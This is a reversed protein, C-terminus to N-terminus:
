PRLIRFILSPEEPNAQQMEISHDFAANTRVNRWGGDMLNTATQLIFIEGHQAPLSMWVGGPTLAIDEIYREPPDVLVSQRVAEIEDSNLARAYVRVDDIWADPTRDVTTRTTGAVRLENTTPQVVGANRTVPSGVRVAAGTEYGLYFHVNTATLTGDYTAAVFFWGNSPRAQTSSVVLGDNVVLTLGFENRGFGASDNEFFLEFGSVGDSMSLFRDFHLPDAQLNMWMSVSFAELGNLKGPAPTAVYDPQTGGATSMAGVSRGAPTNGTRAAAGSFVGDAPAGAGTDEATVQGSAAEDFTYHLAPDSIAYSPQLYNFALATLQDEVVDVTKDAPATWGSAPAFQLGYEGVALNLLTTGTARWNTQVGGTLRWMAGNSVAAAPGLDVRVSGMASSEIGAQRVQQLEQETLIRDYIRVDDFWADPTRDDAVRTTGGIRLEGTTPDVWGSNRGVTDGVRMVAATQIGAYFNVNDSTITGDYSVALFVWGEGPQVPATCRVAVSDVVLAVNFNTRSFTGSAVRDDLYFEFGDLVNHMSLMRDLNVPNSRLNMWLTATFQSMGNIKSPATVGVHNGLAGGETSMASISFGGPTDGVRVASGLFAADAPDGTGTDLAVSGSGPWDHDFTYRVVPQISADAAMVTYNTDYTTQLGALIPLDTPPLPQWGRVPAFAVTQTGAVLTDVVDGSSKWTTDSGAVLRWRAHELVESPGLNVKLSGVEPDIIENTAVVVDDVMGLGAVRFRTLRDRHSSANACLFWTGTGSPTASEPMDYAQPSMLPDGRDLQFQFMARNRVSNTYALRVTVRSWQGNTIGMGFSSLVNGTESGHYVYLTGNTGAFWAVQVNSEEDLASKMAPDSWTFSVMSDFWIDRQAETQQFRVSLPEGAQLVQTPPSLPLPRLVGPQTVYTRPVVMGLEERPASWGNSGVLSTNVPYVEFDDVYPVFVAPNSAVNLTLAAETVNGYLDTVRVAVSTSGADSDLPMGSLVGDPAVNLWAPGNSAAVTWTDYPLDSDTVLDLINREYEEHALAVPLTSSEFVAAATLTTFAAADSWAAGAANSVFVRFVFGTHPILGMASHHWSGAGVGSLPAASEWAGANTGGDSLGWYFTLDGAIGAGLTANLRASRNSILTAPDASVSPAEVGTGAIHFDYPANVEGSNAISVLATFAGAAAPDFQLVFTTAEGPALTATGADTHLTFAADGTVAVVPINSLTVVTPGPNTITFTHQVPLGAPDLAGFYTHDAAGPTADGPAIWQGNGYVDLPRPVVDLTVYGVTTTGNITTYHVFSDAGTYGDNSTYILEGDVWTLTGHAPGTLHTLNTDLGAGLTLVLPRSTGATLSADPASSQALAQTATRVTTFSWRDEFDRFVFDDSQPTLVVEFSANTEAGPLGTVTVTQKQDHNEPTFTLVRPNVVAANSDTLSIAVQVEATPAYLFRVTLPESGHVALTEATPARPLVEFGPVRGNLTALRWATEYGVQRMQRLWDAYSDPHPVPDGIPNRGTILSVMYAAICENHTLDLHWNDPGLAYVNNSAVDYARAWLLRNPSLRGGLPVDNFFVQQYSVCLDSYFYRPGWPGVDIGYRHTLDGANNQLPFAFSYDQLNTNIEYNDADSSWAPAHRGESFHAKAGSKEYMGAFTRVWEIQDMIRTETSSGSHRANLHRTRVDGFGTLEVQNFRGSVVGNVAEDLVAQHAVDAVIDRDSQTWGPPIYSSNTASRNFIRSYASAAALYAGEFSPHAATTILGPHDNTLVGWAAGAPVCPIEAGRAVRRAVEAYRAANTSATLGADPWMMMLYPQGGGEEVKRSIRDVGELHFGPVRAIVYPDDLLLVADWPQSWAAFRADRSDPWYYWQALSYVQYTFNYTSPNQSVMTSVVRNTNMDQFSVNVTGTVAPDQLLIERFQHVVNTAIYASEMAPSYSSTRSTGVILASFDGHVVSASVSFLFALRVARRM